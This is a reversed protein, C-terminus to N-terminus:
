VLDRLSFVTPLEDYQQNIVKSLKMAVEASSSLENNLKLDIFNQRSLFDKPNSQRIVFQMETDVVGPAISYIHWNTHNRAALEVAVTESFLDLAAKSACYTAWADIPRKGAGSSINILQYNPKHHGQYQHIFKNSLLQPAIVNLNNLQIIEEPIQQGIPSIPGITGANNILVIDDKYNAPFNFAKLAKIDSLDITIHRYNPHKITQRRSMGVVEHKQALLLEALAKGIGSSAGTIYTIM